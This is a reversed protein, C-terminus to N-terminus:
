PSIHLEIFDGSDPARYRIVANIRGQLPSQLKISISFQGHGPNRFLWKLKGQSSKKARPSSSLIINQSSIFQEVILNAPAPDPIQINLVIHRGSSSSYHGTIPTKAEVPAHHLFIAFLISVLLLSKKTIKTM